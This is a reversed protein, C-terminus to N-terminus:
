ETITVTYDEVEGWTFNGCANPAVGWQMSVRMRTAGTLADQPIVISSSIAQTSRGSYLMEDSDFVSNHNLDIWVRWNEQYAGYRFGPTLVVSNDGKALLVNANIYDGYGQDNGSALLTSAFSVSEIWEYRTYLGRSECYLVVTINVTSTSVKGGSDIVAATIAHPGPTLSVSLNNGVGLNGDIDSSWSITASLDGDEEDLASGALIVNTTNFIEGDIPSDITVQPTTNYRPQTSQWTGAIRLEGGTFSSPPVVGIPMIRIGVYRTGATLATQLQSGIPITANVVDPVTFSFQQVYEGPEDFDSFDSPYSSAFLEIDFERYAPDASNNPGMRLAVYADVIQLDSPLSGVDYKVIGVEYRGAINALVPLTSISDPEGDIPQDKIVHQSVPTIPPLTDANIYRIGDSSGIESLYGGSTLAQVNVYYNQEKALRKIPEFDLSISTNGNSTSWEAIDALGPATGISYQYQNGVFGDTSSFSANIYPFPIEEGEDMVYTAGPKVDSWDMSSLLDIKVPSLDNRRYSRAFLLEGSQTTAAAGYGSLKNPAFFVTGNGMDYLKTVPQWAAGDYQQRMLYINPGDLRDLFYIDFGGLNNESMMYYSSIVRQSTVPAQEIWTSGTFTYHHLVITAFRIGVHLLGNADIVSGSIFGDSTLDTTIPQLSSWTSGDYVIYEHSTGANNDLYRSILLIIRGDALTHARLNMERTSDYDVLREGPTWQAGDYRSWYVDATTDRWDSWFVVPLNNADLTITTDSFGSRPSGQVHLGAGSTVAQTQWQPLTGGSGGDLGADLSSYYVETDYNAEEVKYVLHLKGDAGIVPSSHHHRFNGLGPLNVPESWNGSLDRLRHYIQVDSSGTDGNSEYILSVRHDPHEVIKARSYNTNGFNQAPNVTSQFFPNLEITHNEVALENDGAFLHMQYNAKHLQPTNAATDINWTDFWETGTENAQVAGLVVTDDNVMLYPDTTSITVTVNETWAGYNKLSPRLLVGGATPDNTTTFINAIRLKSALVSGDMPPLLRAIGSGVNKEAPDGTLKSMSRLRNRLDTSTANPDVSKLLAAMGVVYPSAMSTGSAFAYTNGPMTSYISTGPAMIDVWVGYNSFLAKETVQSNAAAVSFVSVYAAPYFPANSNVNGAAAVLFVGAQACYELADELAKSPQTSGFSMNIIDAGNDCGYYLAEIIDSNTLLGAGTITKYGARLPMIKSNWSVGAIGIGNNGKAAAIGSVHTGHGQVDIPDNDPPGPDEDASVAAGTVTVFDWGAYDDIFGNDDNDIGDNPIEDPNHWINDVLDSHTYDVGTDIIGIVVSESGTTVDWANTLNTTNAYGLQLAWNPDNPITAFVEYVINDEAWEVNPDANLKKLANELQAPDTVSAYFIPRSPGRKKRKLARSKRIGYGSFRADLVAEANGASRRRSNFTAQLSSDSKLRYLIGYSKKKENKTSLINSNLENDFTQSSLGNIFKNAAKGLKADDFEGSHASASFFSVLLGFCYVLRLKKM